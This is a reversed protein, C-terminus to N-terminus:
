SLSSVIRELSRDATKDGAKRDIRPCTQKIKETIHTSVVSAPDVVTYGLMDAEDKVAESIWKAPM